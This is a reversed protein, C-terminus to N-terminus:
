DRDVVLKLLRFGSSTNEVVSDLIVPSKSLGYIDLM